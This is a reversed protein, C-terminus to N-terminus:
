IAAALEKRMEEEVGALHSDLDGMWDVLLKGISQPNSTTISLGKADILTLQANNQDHSITFKELQKRKDKIEQRKTRLLYLREAKDDIEDMTLRQKQPAAAEPLKTQEVQGIVQPKQEEKHEEKAQPKVILVAPTEKGKKTEETKTPLVVKATGQASTTSNSLNKM